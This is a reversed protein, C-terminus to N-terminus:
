FINQSYRGHKFKKLKNKVPDIAIIENITHLLLYNKYIIPNPFLTIDIAESKGLYSWEKLKLNYKWVEKNFFETKNFGNISRGNFFYVDDDNLFYLGAFTGKPLEESNVSMLTQWEQMDNDFYTLFNRASWFGYGGFKILKSDFVFHNAHCQM